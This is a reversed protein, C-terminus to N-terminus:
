PLQTSLALKERAFDFDLQDQPKPAPRATEFGSLTVGLLRVGKEAPFLPALLALAIDFFEAEASLPERASHARTIQQFDAYKLKITVTRGHLQLREASARVKQAIPLFKERAEPFTFVDSLFTLEAGLSKRIRDPKVARFDQGRAIAAYFLGAKGFNRELFEPRCAALDAGTLLGLRRMKEATAPGVGHFKEIKLGAVFSQGMKPTIVFQGDPKNAGSAMKALFKNYSVGASATLETEAFIEARIKQAIATATDDPGLFETLDLYAEDLALPEIIPTYRRFIERIQLSIRRYVEFRPPAFILQPCKRLATVSPMASRVGFARAEYSAAAVVGRARGHGVALPKGRFEPHDRQEVSAFFADMDIHLIKRIKEASM